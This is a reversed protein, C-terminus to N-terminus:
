WLLLGWVDMVQLLKLLRGGAATEGDDDCDQYVIGENSPDRIRWASINHTAKAAKKDTSLLHTLYTRAQAPTTAPAARALFISKKETLVPSLTWPPAPDAPSTETHAAAAPASASASASMPTAATTATEDGHAREEEGTEEGDDGGLAQAVEELLDYICPLGPEFIRALIERVVEVVKAGEGKAIDDGVSQTGLIAPPADPYSYPFKLRLSVSHHSAPLRLTCLTTPESSIDAPQSLPTLTKDGYISNISTIEDALTPNM